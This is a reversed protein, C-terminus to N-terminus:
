IVDFTISLAALQTVDIPQISDHTQRVADHNGWSPARSIDDILRDIVQTPDSVGLPGRTINSASAIGQLARLAKDLPNSSAVILVETSGKPDQTILEFDDRSADPLLLTRGAPLLSAEASATWLNPFIVSIEGVADIVLVAMYLDQSENNQLQFAISTGVPFQTATPCDARAPESCYSESSCGSRLTFAAAQVQCGSDAANMTARVNLRSSGPNLTLKVMRAALLSRLKPQLRTVASTVGENASGYSGPVLDLGQSFLGISNELPVNAQGALMARYAPTLRGLIYHVEGQGLAMSEISAVNALASQASRRESESLSEDLGIRLTIDTPVGRVQEQLLAGSVLAPDLLRGRGVLGERATIEVLGRAQGDADVGALVAGEGFAALSAPNIGGLWLEADNGQIHTLVAEAPPTSKPTFYIPRDGYSTGPQLEFQPEQDSFSLETTTRAVNGLTNSFPTTGTQQWLYQTLAYTFAGAHFDEFPVDAAFQDRKASAIAVGRAIGERRKQRFADPSMDLRALWEAQYALEAESMRLGQGGARSRIVLNGRQAGGSHCSDLVMTFHDTSMASGLLFLTHGTIDQVVGGNRPFGAPLPSDIPVLTGNLGDAFDQDPDVVRSGHGSFHFVAVDDPKAQKILHEEFATLISQRTAQQDTLKLINSPQFGFRHVLLHYQLEVDNVCGYLQGFLGDDPYANIGVLLALKRPNSQALAQGYRNGQRLLSARSWGLASLAASTVQLFRRRSYQRSM